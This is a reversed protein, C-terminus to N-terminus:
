DNQNNNSLNYQEITRDSPKYDKLYDDAMKILDDYEYYPITSLTTTNNLNSAKIYILKNDYDIYQPMDYLTQIPKLQDNLILYGSNGMIVYQGNGLSNMFQSYGSIDYLTCEKKLADEISYINMNGTPYSVVLHKGDDSIFVNSAYDAGVDVSCILKSQPIYYLNAVSSYEDIYIVYDKSASLVKDASISYAEEESRLPIEGLFSGDETSYTRYVGLNFSYVGSRDASLYKFSINDDITNIAYAKSADEINYVIGDGKALLIVLESGDGIFYLNGIETKATLKVKDTGLECVNMEYGEDTRTKSIYYKGCKSIETVNNTALDLVATKYSDNEHFRYYSVYNMKYPILFLGNETLFVDSINMNPNFAFLENLFNTSYAPLYVYNSCDKLILYISSNNMVKAMIIEDSEHDEKLIEGTSMDLQYITDYSVASVCEKGDILIGTDIYSIVLGLSGNEWLTKNNNLDIYKLYAKDFPDQYALLMTGDELIKINSTIYQSNYEIKDLFEGTKINYTFIGNFDSDSVTIAAYKSDNSITVDKITCMLRFVEEDTIQSFIDVELLEEDTESDYFRVYKGSVLAYCESYVNSYASVSRIKESDISEAKSLEKKEGSSLNYKIVSGSEDQYIFTDTGIFAPTSSGIYSYLKITLVPTDNKSIDYIYLKDTDDVIGVYNLRDGIIYKFSADFELTAENTFRKPYLELITSLSHQAETTYPLTDDNISDPLISRISYLADKKRGLELLELSSEATAISYKTATERYQEEIKKSQVNIENSKQLIIDNQSLIEANQAQIENSQKQIRFLMGLCVASFVVMCLFATSVASIIKKMKRERNRQKLDDYNIGLMAASLRLTVDDIKKKREKTSSGRVDAALPELSRIETIEKGDPGITKIEEKTLLEPFSEYPEGDVLVLLIKDRGYLEIFTRIETQCWKSELYRPSCLAILYESERLAYDIQDSLSSAVPLEDEDRFIRGIKDISTNSKVNKPLKLTELKKELTKAVFSDPECHRYSIFATYRKKKTENNNDM